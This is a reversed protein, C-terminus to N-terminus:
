PQGFQLTVALLDGSRTTVSGGSRTMIENVLAFGLWAATERGDARPPRAPDPLEGAPGAIGVVIEPGDKRDRASVSIEFRPRASAARLVCDLVVGLAEALYPVRPAQFQGPLDLVVDFPRDFHLERLERTVRDLIEELDPADSATGARGARLELFVRSQDSVRQLELAKRRARQLLDSQGATLDSGTERVLRELLGQIAMSSNVAVHALVDHCLAAEEVFPVM